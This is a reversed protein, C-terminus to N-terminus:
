KSSNEEKFGVVYDERVKEDYEEINLSTTSSKQSASENMM